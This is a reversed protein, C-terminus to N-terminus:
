RSRSDELALRIVEEGTKGNVLEHLQQKRGAARADLLYRMASDLQRYHKQSSNEAIMQMSADFDQQDFASIIMELGNGETELDGKKRDLVSGSSRGSNQNGLVARPAEPPIRPALELENAPASQTVTSESRDESGGCGSLAVPAIFVCLVLAASSVKLNFPGILVDEKATLVKGLM